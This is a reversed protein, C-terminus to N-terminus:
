SCQLLWLFLQDGNDSSVFLGSSGGLRDGVASLHRGNEAGGGCLTGFALFSGLMLAGGCGRCGLAPM